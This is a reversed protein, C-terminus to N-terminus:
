GPYNHLAIHSLGTRILQYWELDEVPFHRYSDAARCILFGCLPCYHHHMPLLPQHYHYHCIAMGEWVHYLWCFRSRRLLDEEQEFCVISRCHYILFM